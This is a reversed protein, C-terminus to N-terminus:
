REKRLRHRATMFWEIIPRTFNPCVLTEHDLALEEMKISYMSSSIRIEQCSPRVFDGIVYEAGTKIFAGPRKHNAARGVTEDDAFVVHAIHTRPTNTYGCM